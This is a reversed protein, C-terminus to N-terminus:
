SYPVRPGFSMNDFVAAKWRMGSCQFSNSSGDLSCMPLAAYIESIKVARHETYACVIGGTQRDTQRACAPIQASTDFCNFMDEFKESEPLWAM